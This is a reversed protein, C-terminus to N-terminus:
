SQQKGAGVEEPAEVSKISIHLQMCQEAEQDM